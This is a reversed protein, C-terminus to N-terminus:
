LLGVANGFHTEMVIFLRLYFNPCVSISNWMSSVIIMSENSQLWVNGPVIDALLFLMTKGSFFAQLEVRHQLVPKM